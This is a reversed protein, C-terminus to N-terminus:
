NGLATIEELSTLMERVLNCVTDQTQTFAAILVLLQSDAGVVVTDKGSEAENKLTGVNLVDLFISDQLVSM